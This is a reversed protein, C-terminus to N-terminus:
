RWSPRERSGGPAPRSFADRREGTEPLPWPRRSAKDILGDPRACTPSSGRRSVMWPSALSWGVFAKIKRIDPMRRRMDEFGVEYAQDYPVYIIPSSSGTLAITRRALHEITVEDTSGLNFVDGVAKPEHALAIIGRVVDGVFTFCRSQQGDGYVTLPEHRMAQQVFRPIVM